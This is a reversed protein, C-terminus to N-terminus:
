DFPNKDFFGTENGDEAPAAMTEPWDEGSTYPVHNVVRIAQAYLGKTSTKGRVYERGVVRVQVISGNGLKKEDDWLQNNFDVVRYPKRKEGEKTFEPSRFRIFPQGDPTLKVTGDKTKAQKDEFGVKKLWEATKPTIELDFTWQRENAFENFVPDGFIKAWYIRGELVTNVDEM